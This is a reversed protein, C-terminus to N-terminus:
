EDLEATVLLRNTKLGGPWCTLLTLTPKNLYLPNVTDIPNIENPKKIETKQVIYKIEKNNYNVNIEDGTVLRDLTAFITKYNKPNYFFALVSHGYILTNGNEGPLATNPYHGLFNEPSLEQSNTEVLANEINLKPISIYFYKPINTDKAALVAPNTVINNIPASLNNQALDVELEKPQQKSIQKRLETFEFKEFGVAWAFLTNQQKFKNELHQLPTTFFVLPMIVQVVLVALGVIFLFRHLNTRAFFSKNKQTYFPIRSYDKFYIKKEFKNFIPM